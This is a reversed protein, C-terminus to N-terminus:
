EILAVELDTGSTSFIYHTETEGTKVNESLIDVSTNKGMPLQIELIWNFKEQTVRVNTRGNKKSFFVSILNNGVQVNELSANDWESPMQPAIVVKKHAADPQIGFFQEVVPVAFGYINWAQTMMGYDPSVEYISGPLAYSFTRTMKKLYNLANDPRGYNNEAIIQVGTPLTMVAGTYSFTKAGKFSVEQSDASEDRDIGTVFVGFPNVFKEATTLAIIGKDEPAIKMEMPTNVVWNHHLVFPRPKSSPNALIEKKTQLLEAMAWPKDLTDARVIAAEILQLTQKDTGIFDAYSNFEESWFQENINIKLLTAISDYRQSLEDKGLVMAMKSADEFAKQSYVAVDIMESDLGHIEMMGFGDPFSNKNSDNENLLWDLGNEITPFYRQLFEIEGNWQYVKWILSAFQPTENINGENYVSGNTSMEHIIRGNSNLANSVSDLLRITNYVAETQGVAMYGQLSYESDVGFWWPYDPIGAGIGSGIEPVTRVLWDGNYKVWEYAQEIEKDPITLRSKKAIGEYRLRKSSVDKEINKQISEYSDLAETESTYSGAITFNIVKTENAQLPVRYFLDAGLGNGEYISAGRIHDTPPLTSGFVVYWPNLSDKVIWINKEKHFNAVDKSDYMNTREGLWTPRLDSYGTFLIEIEAPNGNNKLVLQISMGEKGDPVFQWREVEIDKTSWTYSHRNTYPYNTFTHAKDLAFIESEGVQSLAINFGDMLKIPHDWIGGMEGEIHWGLEPFSGDQHGVMYVRDGATVMPSNLYDKKGNILPSGQTLGNFNEPWNDACSSFIIVTSVLLLTKKM